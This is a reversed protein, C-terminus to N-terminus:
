DVEAGCFLCCVRESRKEGEPDTIIIADETAPESKLRDPHGKVLVEAM